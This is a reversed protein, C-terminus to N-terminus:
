PKKKEYVALLKIGKHIKKKLPYASDFQKLVLDFSFGAMPLPPLITFDAQLKWRTGVANEPLKLKKSRLAREMDEVAGKDFAKSGSPKVVDITWGGKGDFGVDLVVALTATWMSASEVEGYKELIGDGQADENVIDFDEHEKKPKKGGLTGTRAYSKMASKYSKFWSSVSEAFFNKGIQEFGPDWAEEMSHKMQLFREDYAGDEVAQAAKIEGFFEALAKDAGEPAPEKEETGVAKACAGYSLMFMKALNEPPSEEQPAPGAVVAPVTQEGEGAPPEPSADPFVAEPAKVRESPAPKSVPEPATESPPTAARAPPEHVETEFLAVELARGADQVPWTRWVASMVVLVTVHLLISLCFFLVKNKVSGSRDSPMIAGAVRIAFM